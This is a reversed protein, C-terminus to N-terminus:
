PARRRRQEVKRRRKRRVYWNAYAAWAKRLLAGLYVLLGLAGALGAYSLTPLPPRTACSDGVNFECSLASELQSLTQNSASNSEPMAKIATRAVHLAVYRDARSERETFAVERLRALQPGPETEAFAEAFEQGVDISALYICRVAKDQKARLWVTEGSPTAHPEVGSYPEPDTLIRSMARVCGPVRPRGRFNDEYYQWSAYAGIAILGLSLALAGHMWPAIRPVPRLPM